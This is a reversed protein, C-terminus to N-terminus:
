LCFRSAQRTNRTKIFFWNRTKQSALLCKLQNCNGESLISLTLSVLILVTCFIALIIACFPDFCIPFIVLESFPFVAVVIPAMFARPLKIGCSNM